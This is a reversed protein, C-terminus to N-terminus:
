HPEWGVSVGPLCHAPFQTDGLQPFRPTGQCDKVLFELAKRFGPGAVPMLNLHQAIAAERYVSVFTPSIAAISDPFGRPDPEAPALGLLKSSGPPGYTGIFLRRCQTCAYRFVVQVGEVGKVIHAVVVETDGFLHCLPCQDPVEVTYTAGGATIMKQANAM